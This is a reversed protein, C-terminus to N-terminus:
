KVVEGVFREYVGRVTEMSALCDAEMAEIGRIMALARLQDSGIVEGQMMQNIHKQIRDLTRQQRATLEVQFKTLEVSPNTDAASGLKKALLQNFGDRLNETPNDYGFRYSNWFFFM